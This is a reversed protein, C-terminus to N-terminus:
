PGSRRFSAAIRQRVAAEYLSREALGIGGASYAKAREWAPLRALRKITESDLQPPHLQRRSM